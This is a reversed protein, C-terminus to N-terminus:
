GLLANQVDKSWSLFLAGDHAILPRKMLVPYDNLLELPDRARETADLGRWTSSGTNVLDAGFQKYASQLVPGPVGEKRVDCLRADSLLKMAKRCTDCNKLGYLIM